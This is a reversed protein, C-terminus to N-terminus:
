RGTLLEVVVRSIREASPLVEIELSRAAPIPLPLAGVRRFRGTYGEELSLAAVESGFGFGAPAEDVVVTAASRHRLVAALTRSPFPALLSAVVIRVTLEEQELHAASAEVAALMTGCTVLTVDSTEDGRVLVPFLASAPDDPHAPVVAYGGGGPRTGYFAKPEFFVVPYPWDRVARELLRGVEHRHSPVVVTLGAVSMALGHMTQSHTPGYGRGGGEPTRIVLPVHVAPMAGALKVAHNLLQDFGLSLFDAFMIEVVPLTGGLALGIGAGVLAAESIPTSLVQSGYRESLGATVKFAGGYPDRLDEGLVIVHPDSTLLRDLAGNLSERISDCIPEPCQVATPSPAGTFIHEPPSAFRSAPSTRAAVEVARLFAENADEIERCVDAGLRDALRAVPDRVRLEEMESPTRTDDGRSHPGLRATRIALLGPAGVARVHRVVSEVDQCFTPSADDLNWTTLGFAAGRDTISGGGIMGATPTSQAIGNDELVFLVPLTWTSALNFSEYLLGEGLTGDGICIASVGPEGRRRRALAHGVAIACLGAQVGNSHFGPACLHQSGGRGQNVGAQRGMIEALLGLFDGTFALFHGHNRHNSFVADAAGSLTRMAAIQSFEQGVCTHTTGAILNARFLDLLRLEFQRILNAFAYLDRPGPAIAPRGLETRHFPELARLDQSRGV